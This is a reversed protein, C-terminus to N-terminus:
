LRLEKIQEKLRLIFQFRENEETSEEECHNSFSIDLYQNQMSKVKQSRVNRRKHIKRSVTAKLKSFVDDETIILHCKPCKLLTHDFSNCISCKYKDRKFLANEKAIQYHEM